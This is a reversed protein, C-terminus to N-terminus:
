TPVSPGIHLCAKCMFIGRKMVIFLKYGEARLPMIEVVSYQTTHPTM